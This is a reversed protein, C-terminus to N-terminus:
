NSGNKGSVTTTRCLYQTHNNKARRYFCFHAQIPHRLSFRRLAAAPPESFHQARFHPDVTVSALVLRSYFLRAGETGDRMGDM